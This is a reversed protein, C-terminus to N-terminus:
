SEGRGHGRRFETIKLALQTFAQKMQTLRRFRRQCIQEIQSCLSQHPESGREGSILGIGFVGQLPGEGCDSTSRSQQTGCVSWPGVQQPGDAVFGESNQLFSFSVQGAFVVSGRTLGGYFSAKNLFFGCVTYASDQLCQRLIL